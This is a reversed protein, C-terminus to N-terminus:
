LRRLLPEEDCKGVMGSSFRGIFLKKEAMDLFVASFYKQFIEACTM